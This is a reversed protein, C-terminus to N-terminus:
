APGAAMDNLRKLLEEEKLPTFIFDAHPLRKVNNGLPMQYMTIAVLLPVDDFSPCERIAKCMALADKERYRRSFVIVGQVPVGGGPVGQGPRWDPPAEIFSWDHEFSPQDLQADRNDTANVLLVTLTSADSDSM